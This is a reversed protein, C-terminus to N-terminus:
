KFDYHFVIVFDKMLCFSQAAREIEAICFVFEGRGVGASCMYSM